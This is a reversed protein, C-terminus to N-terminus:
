EVQPWVNVEPELRIGTKEFVARAIATTFAYFEQGSAQGNHTFISATIPSVQCNGMRVGKWGLRDLIQGAPVKILGAADKYTQFQGAVSELHALETETLMPNKFFSGVTPDVKPDLLKQQRLRVVEQFVESIQYPPQHLRVLNTKLSDNGLAHVERSLTLHFRVKIILWRPQHKFISTRYGFGADKHPIWNRQGSDLDLIEVADIASEIESGYAGINQVPAAGVSGPILALNELGAWGAKVVEEVLTPWSYGASVELHVSTDRSSVISKAAHTYRLVAGQLNDRILINSGGGMIWRVRSRLTPNSQFEHLDTDSELEILEEAIAPLRLTNLPKLDAQHYHKM